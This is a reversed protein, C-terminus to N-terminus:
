YDDYKADNKDYVEIIDGKTDRYVLDQNELKVSIKGNWKNTTIYKCYNNDVIATYIYLLKKNKYLRYKNILKFM